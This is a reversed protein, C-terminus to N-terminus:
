NHTLSPQSFFHGCSQVVFTPLSFLHLSVSLLLLVPATLLPESSHYNLCLVTHDMRGRIWFDNCIKLLFVNCYWSMTGNANVNAFPTIYCNELLYIEVLISTSTAIKSLTEIFCPVTASLHSYLQLILSTSLLHTHFSHSSEKASALAGYHHACTLSWKVLKKLACVQKLIVKSHVNNQHIHM